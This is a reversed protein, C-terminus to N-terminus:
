KPHLSTTFMWWQIPTMLAIPSVGGSNHAFDTHKVYKLPFIISFFWFVSEPGVCGPCKLHWIKVEQLATSNCFLHRVIVPRKCTMLENRKVALCIVGFSCATLAPPCCHLHVCM